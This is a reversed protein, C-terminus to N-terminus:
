KLFVESFHYFGKRGQLWQAARLAGLAFGSRNRATHTLTITDAAADLLLSHTGPISGCRTSSIPLSANAQKNKVEGMFTKAIQLATGSPSDLKKSHHAEELAYEYEPFLNALSGARKILEIFLTMGPSFNEAYLFGIQSTNVIDKAEDMKDYWGTTGVVLSVGAAACQKLRPLVAEPRSFDICLDLGELEKEKSASGIIRTIEIAKEKALSEVERGMKGYGILGLRM